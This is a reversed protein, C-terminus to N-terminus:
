FALNVFLFFSLFFIGVPFAKKNDLKIESKGDVGRGVM